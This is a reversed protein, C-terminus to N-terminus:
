CKEARFCLGFSVKENFHLVFVVAMLALTAGVLTLLVWWMWEGPRLFLERRWAAGDGGPSLVLKSNPIVGELTTASRPSTSGAILSEIYNNTRGLGLFAYPTHLSQYSTQPLQVAIHISKALVRISVVCRM